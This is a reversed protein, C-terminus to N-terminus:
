LVMMVSKLLLHLLSQFNFLTEETGLNYSIQSNIPYFLHKSEDDYSFKASSDSVFAYNIGAGEHKFTIGKGNVREDDAEISLTYQTIGALAQASFLLATAAATFFKM